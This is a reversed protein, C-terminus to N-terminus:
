PEILCEGHAYTFEFPLPLNARDLDFRMGTGCAKALDDELIRWCPVVGDGCPAVVTQPQHDRSRQEISCAFGGDMRQPNFQVCQLGLSTHRVQEVIRRLITPADGAELTTRQSDNVFSDFLANLRPSDQPYVGFLRVHGTASRLASITAEINADSRDDGMAVVVILLEHRRSFSADAALARPLVEIPRASAGSSGVNALESVARTLTGRYNQVRDGRRVGDILYSGDVVANTHLRDADRSDTTAVAFHLDPTGYSVLALQEGFREILSALEAQRPASAASNDIVLLVDLQPRASM